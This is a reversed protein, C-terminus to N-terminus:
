PVPVLPPLVDDYARVSALRGSAGRVLVAVGAQPPLRTTGWGVVNYELACARGDDVLACRELPIGGGHSFLRGYCASLGESGRHIGGDVGLGSACGDPEFAAVIAGVDGATFARLYEAVVDSGLVDPDPQLLPPRNAHRGTLPQGSFYVRVEDIRGDLQRDAVVAIPLDVAADHSDLHLVVEEFGHRDLIVHEVDDVSANRERLWASAETVFARFAAEGKVRGRVPDHVEPDGVFSEVLPDPDGAMLGDFYPVAVLSERRREDLLRQLAPATFLEPLWPM